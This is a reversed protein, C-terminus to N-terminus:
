ACCGLARESLCVSELEARRVHTHRDSPSGAKTKPSTNLTVGGGWVLRAGGRQVRPAAAGGARARVAGPAAVKKPPSPTRSAPSQARAAGARTGTSSSTAAERSRGGRDGTTRTAATKMEVAPQPPPPSARAARSRSLATPRPPSPPPTPPQLPSRHRQPSASPPLTPPPSEASRWADRWATPPSQGAAPRSEGRGGGGLAEEGHGVGQRTWSVDLARNQSRSLLYAPAPSTLARGAHKGASAEGAGLAEAGRTQAQSHGGLAAVAAERDGRVHEEMALLRSLTSVDEELGRVRGRLSAAEAELEVGRAQAAEVETVLALRKGEAEATLAKVDRSCAEGMADCQRRLAGHQQELAAYQERGAEAQRRAESLDRAHADRDRQAALLAAKADAVERVLAQEREQAAEQSTAARTREEQALSSLGDTKAQLLQYADLLVEREEALTDCKGKAEATAAQEDSLQGSRGYWGKLIHAM